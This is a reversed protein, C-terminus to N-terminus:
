IQLVVCTLFPRICSRACTPVFLIRSGLTGGPPNQRYQRRCRREQRWPPSLCVPGPGGHSQLYQAHQCVRGCYVARHSPVASMPPPTSTARPRSITNVICHIRDVSVLPSQRHFFIHHAPHHTNQNDGQANSLADVKFLTHIYM